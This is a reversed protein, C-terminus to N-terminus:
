SRRKRCRAIEAELSCDCTFTSVPVHVKVNLMDSDPGGLESVVAKIVSDVLAEKMKQVSGLVSRRADDQAAAWSEDWVRWIEVWMKDREGNHLQPGTERVVSRAAGLAAHKAAHWAENFVAVHNAENGPERGYAKARVAPMAAHLAANWVAAFQTANARLGEATRERAVDQAIQSADIDKGANGITDFVVDWVTNEIALGVSEGARHAVTSLWLSNRVKDPLVDEEIMSQLMPKLKLELEAFLQTEIVNKLHPHIRRAMTSRLLVRLVSPPMCWALMERGSSDFGVIGRLMTGYGVSRCLAMITDLVAKLLMRGLEDALTSTLSSLNPSLRAFLQDAAPISKPLEHRAVITLVAWSFFWCNYVLPDYNQADDDQSIGYCASLVLILEVERRLALEVECKSTEMIRPKAARVEDIARFRTTTVNPLRRDFRFISEDAMRAIIFRHVVGNWPQKRIQLSKVTKCQLSDYWEFVPGERWGKPFNIAVPRTSHDVSLESTM